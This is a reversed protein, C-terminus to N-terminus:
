KISGKQILSKAYAILRKRSKKDMNSWARILILYDNDTPDYKDPIIGFLYDFSVKEYEQVATLLKISPNRNGAEVSALTSRSIGRIKLKEVLYKEQSILEAGPNKDYDGKRLEKIRAGIKILKHM